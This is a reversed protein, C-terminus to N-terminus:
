AGHQLLAWPARARGRVHSFLERFNEYSGFLVASLAISSVMPSSIGAFLGRVGENRVTWQLCTWSSAFNGTQMRVKVTDFPHGVVTQAFGAFLGATYHTMDPM